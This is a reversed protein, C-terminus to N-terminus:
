MSCIFWETYCNSILVSYFYMVGSTTVIKENYMKYLSVILM